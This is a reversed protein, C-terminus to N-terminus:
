RGAAATGGRAPFADCRRGAGIAAYTRRGLAYVPPLELLSAWLLTLPLAHAIEIVADYGVLVRNGTVVQIHGAAPQVPVRRQEVAATDGAGVFDLRALWDLSRFLRIAGSCFSCGADWLVSPREEPRPLFAFYMGLMVGSFVALDERHGPMGVPILLHMTFGLAFAWKRVRDIWLAAALFLETLIVAVALLRFMRLDPVANGWLLVNQLVEGSLFRANVKQLATFLYVVTLQFRLLFVGTYPVTAAHASPGRRRSDVSLRTGSRAVTLLLVALGLLYVHNSYLNLDLALQYAVLTALLTGSLTTMAGLTFCVSMALWATVYYPVADIGLDPIWAVPRARVVDVGYVWHLLAWTRFAQLTAAMGVAIRCMGLARADFDSRVITTLATLPM